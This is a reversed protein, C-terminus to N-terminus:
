VPDGFYDAFIEDFRGDARMARLGDNLLGRVTDNGQRVAFGYREGTPFTESVAYMSDETARYANVPFDQLIASIEGATLAAFMEEPDGFTVVETGPPAHENAYAEGTTGNQVGIRTSSLSELTPFTSPDMARVLLSQDADFYPDSFDMEREREGTITVASAVVDCVGAELDDFIGDFPRDLVELELEEISAIETLLDLDFGTPRGEADIVEFPEYPIDSCVTLSGEQVLAGADDADDDGCGGVLLAVVLGLSLRCVTAPGYRRRAPGTGALATADDSRPTPM